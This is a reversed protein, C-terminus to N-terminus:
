IMAGIVTALVMMTGIFFFAITKLEVVHGFLNLTRPEKDL